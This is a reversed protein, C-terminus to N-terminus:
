PLPRRDMPKNFIAPSHFPPITSYPPPTHKNTAKSSTSPSPHRSLLCLRTDPRHPRSSLHLVYPATPNWCRPPSSPSAWRWSNSCSSRPRPPPLPPTTAPLSCRPTRPRPPLRRGTAVPPSRATTADSSTCGSTTSPAPSSSSNPPTQPPPPTTSPHTWVHETGIWEFAIWADVHHFCPPCCPVRVEAIVGSFVQAAM